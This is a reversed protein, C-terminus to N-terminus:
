YYYDFWRLVQLAVPTRCRRQGTGYADPTSLSSSTTTSSSNRLEEEFNKQRSEIIEMRNSMHDFKEDWKSFKMDLM